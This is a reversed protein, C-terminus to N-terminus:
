STRPYGAMPQPVSSSDRVVEVLSVLLLALQRRKADEVAAMSCTEAAPVLQVSAVHVGIGGTSTKTGSSAKAKPLPLSLAAQEAVPGLVM